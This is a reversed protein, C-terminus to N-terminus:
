GGGTRVILEPVAEESLGLPEEAKKRSTMKICLGTAHREERNVISVARAAPVRVGRAAAAAAEAWAAGSCDRVM